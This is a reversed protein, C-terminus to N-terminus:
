RGYVLVKGRRKSNLKGFGVNMVNFMVWKEPTEEATIVLSGKGDHDSYIGIFKKRYKTQGTELNSYETLLIEYPNEIVDRFYRLYRERSNERGLMAHALSDMGVQMLEGDPTKLAAITEKPSMGMTMRFETELAEFAAKKSMGRDVLAEWKLVRDPGIKWFEDPIKKELPREHDKPGPQDPTEKWVIKGKEQRDVRLDYQRELGGGRDGWGHDPLLYRAPMTQGTAIDVPEFMTNTPDETEITWGNREIERLSVSVVTCRCNFGNPPYWTLWFPHHYPFIKGHMAAHSPRSSADKIAVYRWYPRAALMAPTTLQRYRAAQYSTQMNTRFITEIRHPKLAKYGHREFIGPMAKQFDALTSGAEMAKDLEDKVEALLDAKSVGAITFAKAKFFDRAEEFPKGPGWQAEVFEAESEVSEVGLADAETLAGALAQAVPLSDMSTYLSTINAAANQLSGAGLVFGTIQGLWTDYFNAAEKIRADAKADLDQQFSEASAEASAEAFEKPSAIKRAEDLVGQMSEPKILEDGGPVPELGLRARVENITVAGYKFHYEYLAGSSTKREEPRPLNYTERWYDDDIDVGIDVALIKDRDALSKLDQEPETRFWLSPYDTVGAFNFDVIWRILTENLCEALLDADAKIIDQRVQEQSDENGLKGPTGETSATQGLVAKSMQRDMYQCMTEYSVDGGRKAELFELTMGEPIIVGTENQISDIAALLKDKATKDANAPYKGVPTPAGFKELFIMWFKIGHKKFWVSWWLKQGLGRGYPSDSAGYSFVLFKRDPVPEGDMMNAPSLLRLERGDTFVFRRPHKGIIKKPLWQGNVNAWMVEGVFYGYLVAQMLEQVAQTFNFRGLAEQVFEAIDQGRADDTGPNVEFERGAIALYRTQLVSSAHSDQDVQDYLRIGKGGAQTRLVPDPNELRGFWGAFIDVDKQATAVEQTIPTKITEEAM